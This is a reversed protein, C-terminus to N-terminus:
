IQISAAFVIVHAGGAVSTAASTAATAEAFLGDLFHCGSQFRGRICRCDHRITVTYTAADAAAVPVGTSANTTADAFVTHINGLM